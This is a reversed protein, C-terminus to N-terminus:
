TRARQAGHLGGEVALEGAHAGRRRRETGVHQEGPDQGADIRGIEHDLVERRQRAVMLEVAEDRREGSARHAGEDLPAVVQLHAEVVHHELRAIGAELHVQLHACLLERVEVVHRLDHGSGHHRRRGIRGKQQLVPQPVFRPNGGELLGDVDAARGAALAACPLAHAEALAPDVVRQDLQQLILHRSVADQHHAVRALRREVCERAALYRVQPREAQVVTGHVAPVAGAVADDVALRVHADLVTGQGGAGGDDVLHRVGGEEEAEQEPM